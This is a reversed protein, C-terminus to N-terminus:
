GYYYATKKGIAANMEDLMQNGGINLMAGLYEDIAQQVTYDPNTIANKLCDAYWKGAFSKNAEYTQSNINQYQPPTEFVAGNKLSDYFQKFLANYKEAETISGATVNGNQSFFLNADSHPFIDTLGGALYPLCPYVYKGESDQPMEVTISGDSNLVYSNPSGLWCELYNEESGFVLNVLFDITEKPQATDKTLAFGSIQTLAIQPYKPNM